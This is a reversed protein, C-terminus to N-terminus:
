AQVVGCRIALRALQAANKLGLKNMIHTQHVGVTKPSICLTEAIEVVTMGEALLRFVQFERQSLARVPDPESVKMAVLEPLLTTDFYPKGSNVTRIAEVMQSPASRKTLYGMAGAELARAVMVQSDHMSFILVRARVDRVRVRRLAEMGGNGPMNIDLVMVDPQLDLYMQYAEEGSEAEGIVKIDSTNDLLRSYGDRIVPHDDVLLVRINNTESM